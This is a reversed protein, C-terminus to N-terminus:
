PYIGSEEPEVNKVVSTTHWAVGAQIRSAPVTPTPDQPRTTTKFDLRSRKRVSASVYDDDSDSSEDNSPEYEDAEVGYDIDIAPEGNKMLGDNETRSMDEDMNLVVNGIDKMLDVNPKIDWDNNQKENAEEGLDFGLEPQLTVKCGKQWFRQLQALIKVRVIFQENSCQSVILALNNCITVVRIYKDMPM